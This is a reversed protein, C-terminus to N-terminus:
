PDEGGQSGSPTSSGDTQASTSGEGRPYDSTTRRTLSGSRVAELLPEVDPPGPRARDTVWPLVETVAALVRGIGVGIARPRRIALARAAVALEIAEVRGSLDVQESLRRAGLSAISTRDETGEAETTSALEHSVPQALMRAEVALAQAAIGLMGIGLSEPRDEPGALGTPLGSWAADLLKLARETSSTVASAIAIRALDLAQALPVFDFNAVPILRHEEVVVIPNGQSANLEIALQDGAFRLADHLAGNVHPLSRFSLPDQLNRASDPEWASSGELLSRIRELSRSMGPYPRTAAIAPHFHDLNAAFAELSLAGAVDLTEALVGADTMALGAWATSFAGNDILALAEGARLPRQGVIAAALDALPALDAQGVSGLSRITPVEGANLADVVREALEPSVGAVGRAFGNALVLMTGRVVETPAPPGQGVRHERLLAAGAAAAKAPDVRVRRNVGVGTNLGYVEDGRELAQEVVERAARMRERAGPHIAVPRRERAVAVLQDLTLDFGTLVLPEEAPDGMAALTTM